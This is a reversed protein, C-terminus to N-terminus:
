ASLFRLFRGLTKKLRRRERPKLGMNLGRELEQWYRALHDAARRGDRSLTLRPESEDESAAALLDKGALRNLRQGLAATGLGTAGAIAEITMAQKEALLLLIADDGPELGLAPLPALLAQRALQGAEILRLLSSRAASKM